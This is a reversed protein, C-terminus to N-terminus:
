CCVLLGGTAVVAWLDTGRGMLCMFCFSTARSVQGPQLGASWMKEWRAEYAEKLGPAAAMAASTKPARSAVLTSSVTRKANSCAFRELSLRTAHLSHM